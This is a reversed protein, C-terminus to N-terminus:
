ASRKVPAHFQFLNMSEGLADRLAPYADPSRKAFTLVNRWEQIEKGDLLGLMADDTDQRDTGDPGSSDISDRYIPTLTEFSLVMTGLRTATNRMYIQEAAGVPGSLLVIDFAPDAQGLREMAVNVSACQEIFMDSMSFRKAIADPDAGAGAILIKM